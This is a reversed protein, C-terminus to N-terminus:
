EENLYHKMLEASFGVAVMLGKFVHFVEDATVDDHDFEVSATIGYVEITLKFTDKM